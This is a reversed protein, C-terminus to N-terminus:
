LNKRLEQGYPLQHLEVNNIKNIINEDEATFTEGFLILEWNTYHQNVVSSICKELWKAKVKYVPVVISVLPRNSFSSILHESQATSLQNQLPNYPMKNRGYKQVVRYWCLRVGGTKYTAWVKALKRRPPGVFFWWIACGLVIFRWAM